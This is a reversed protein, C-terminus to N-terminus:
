LERLKRRLIKGVNNKPIENIFHVKKPVKYITLGKKCFEIIDIETLNDSSRVIFLHISEGRNSDDIGIVGCEIVDPHQSVYDEIENPYVNFGSSIIMDKKRDVIRLFGNKNIVAIDGTKFFGDKTFSSLTDDEKNWYKSMVQPGKVCLEGPEEYGLPKGSDDIILIDTSPVPLGISGNFKDNIPNISVIPSTETLGYGQTIETGTIKKWKKATSSLVSMGGGVSFKLSSFNIKRFKSSTLLLNFLTNVATIVTFRHKTLEKVFSKLDRPNAILINNSGISYFYLFNVTFSFIHYLPLATIIIEKGKTVHPRVWINLQQINSLINKHTLLAAKSKGTTGGTYQLLAIDDHYLNVKKLIYKKSITRSFPIYNNNSIMKSRKFFSITKILLSMPFSLLDSIRCVIVNKIKTNKIILNLEDIFKDLVIITEAGSDNLANEIERGKYLPNINIVTAAAKYCGLLTVPYTFLNPLMIAVRSGKEISLEHQLYAGFNESFYEIDKFSLKSNLSTFATNQSYKHSANQILDLVSNNSLEEISPSIDSPYSQLWIKEM